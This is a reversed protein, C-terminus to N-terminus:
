TAANLLQYLPLFMAVVVYGVILGMVGIMLPELAAMFSNLLLEIEEELMDALHRYAVPMRGTEEGLETFGVVLPPFVEHQRILSTLSEGEEIGVILKDIARSMAYDSLVMDTLELAHTLPLGCAILAGMSRSYRAATTTNLLVRLMPTRRAVWQMRYRGGPTRLYQGALLVAIVIGPLFLQYFWPSNLAQGLYVVSQTIWPLTVGTENFVGQILAPLVRQTLLLVCFCCILFVFAPYVLASRLKHRLKLDRELHDSVTTLNAVLSGSSEGAKVLGRYVPSFVGPHRAMARSLPMGRQLCRSLDAWALNLRAGYDGVQLVDLSHVVDIGSNLMVSMQRTALALGSLDPPLLLTLKRWFNYFGQDPSLSVPELGLAQVAKFAEIENAGKVTGTVWAGKGNNATYFYSNVAGGM